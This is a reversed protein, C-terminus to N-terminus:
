LNDIYSMGTFYKGLDFIIIAIPISHVLRSPIFDLYKKWIHFQDNVYEIAKQISRIFTLLGDLSNFLDYASGFPTEHGM